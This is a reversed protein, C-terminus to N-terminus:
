MHNFDCPNLCTRLTLCDHGKRLQDRLNKVLTIHQLRATIVIRRELDSTRTHELSIPSLTHLESIDTKVLNPEAFGITKWLSPLYKKNEQIFSLHIVLSPFNKSVTKGQIATLFGDTDNTWFIWTM